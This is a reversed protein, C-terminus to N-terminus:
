GVVVNVLKKPIVIVRKVEKGNLHAQVKESALALRQLEEDSTDPSVRLRDRVKGNVQVVVEIEEAQALQRNGQPWSQLTVSGRSARLGLQEWLEEAQYPAFPVLLLCFTELTESLVPDAVKGQLSITENLLEMLAAIATNFEFREVDETVRLITQHLKRRLARDEKSHFNNIKTQWQPDFRKQNAIVTRWLRQQFRVVGEIGQESWEAQEGAPAMFLIFLRSADVGHKDWLEDPAIVNGRKSLKRGKYYIIGQNFLRLFPEDFPLYGMDHLVQTIFRAYILHMTAHERGGIYQDVPLWYRVEEPNWPQNEEKPSVYRLFYWSSDVFTDMTDGDRRAPGGCQPCSTHVFPPTTALPSEGKGTIQVEEPLLVPLQDEPVPVMGCTECYVIPIPAGWYRQRSILWDRLRYRVTKRGLGREELWQVIKEKAEESPLGDFPGSNIQIGPDIYAEPLPEELTKGPPTIVPKIPLSYQRAFDFDRTDHAPVGMVAGTGYELLVYNAIWLPLTEGTAPHIAEVGLPMGEKPIDIATREIETERLVREIFALVEAEQPKGRVLEKVLPHEPALVIYTVGYLTDPRTTFVPIEQGTDKVKFLIEAGESRGIWNKQMTIVDEPWQLRSHNELLREAYDTIRFFWQSMWKKTVLTGCRECAGNVVQENALATACSSCWNVPAEKKYALGRKYLQLFIWQTWKYYDPLSTNVERDWDYSYGMRHFQERMRAINKETWARPHIGRQIAANEAPLGFADWGMPHLVHYGRMMMYRAHADGVTYNRIHGWHLDGSPYPFMELVYYKPRDEGRTAETSFIKEEEWVRRWKAEVEAFNYREEM